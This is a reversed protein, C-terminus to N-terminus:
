RDQVFMVSVAEFRTVNLSVLHVSIIRKKDALGIRNVARHIEM